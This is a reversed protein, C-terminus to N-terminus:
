VSIPSELESAYVDPVIMQALEAVQDFKKTFNQLAAISYERAKSNYSLEAVVHLLASSLEFAHDDNIKVISLSYALCCGAERVFPGPGDLISSVTLNVLIRLMSDIALLHNRLEYVSLLNALFQIRLLKVDNAPGHQLKNIVMLVIEDGEAYKFIKSLNLASAKLTVLVAKFAKPDPNRTQLEKCLCSLTDTIDYRVDEESGFDFEIEELISRLKDLDKSYKDFCKKLYSISDDLEELNVPYIHPKLSTKRNKDDYSTVSASHDKHPPEMPHYDPNGEYPAEEDEDDELHLTPADNNTPPGGGNQLASPHVRVNQIFQSIMAGFPTSMVDQPLDTIHSPIKKGTLFQSVENSFTNCNHLFLDYREPRFAERSLGALYEHFIRKTVSTEGLCVTEDPQGLITGCPACNTIGDSGFYYEKGFCVIATHWIGDIQKGILPLSLQRAMGKSIDYIYLNVKKM